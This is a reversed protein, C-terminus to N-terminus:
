RRKSAKNNERWRYVLWSVFLIVIIVVLGKSIPDIFAGVKEYNEGLLFGSITLLSVWGISGLSTYLLFKGLPMETVGAPVSIYTRIGPILRGLGIAWYGGQRSFWRQVGRIEKSSIGFWKGRRDALTCIRELGFARGIYYWLIAGLISGTSGAAIAGWLSMEGKAAAFGALPMILESPIPPIVNELLMLAAVGWYGFSDVVGVIKDLIEEL